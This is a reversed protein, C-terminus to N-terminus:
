ENEKGGMLNQRAVEFVRNRDELSRWVWHRGRKEYWDFWHPEFDSRESYGMRWRGDHYLEVHVMKYTGDCHIIVTYDDSKEWEWARVYGLVDAGDFINSLRDFINDSANASELFDYITLQDM